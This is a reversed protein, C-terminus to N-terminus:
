FLVIYIFILTAADTVHHPVPPVTYTDCQFPITPLIFSMQINKSIDYM